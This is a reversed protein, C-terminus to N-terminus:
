KILKKLTQSLNTDIFEYGNEILKKPYVRTGFLLVQESMEGFIAKLIFAPMHFFAPRKLVGALEKTFYANTCSSPSVLNVPGHISQNLLIYEISNVIDDISIWSWYQTGKGINGGLGLKFPTLMKELAGGEKALVLGIRLNVVRKAFEGAIGAETEWDVALEPLFGKGPPSDEDLERNGTSGYIGVASACIFDKPPSSTNKFINVLLRTTDIRSNRIRERKSKTWRGVINEGALHVAADFGEFDGINFDENEYDIFVSEGTAPSKSRVLRVPDHGKAKLHKVLKSGILGSSGSILVRM